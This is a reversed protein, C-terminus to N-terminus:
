RASGVRREESRAVVLLGLFAPRGWLLAVLAVAGLAGGVAFAAALNRGARRRGRDPPGAGPDAPDSGHGDPKSEGTRPDAGNGRYPDPAAQGRRARDPPGGAVQGSAPPSPEVPGPGGLEKM